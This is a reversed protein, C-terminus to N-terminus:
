CATDKIPATALYRVALEMGDLQSPHFGPKLYVPVETLFSTLNPIVKRRTASIGELVPALYRRFPNRSRRRAPDNAVLWALTAMGTAFLAASGLVAMRARRAYSGDIHQYADFVVSRHEVEEAGHWRLLDLLMPHIGSGALGESELFFKGWVATYHELASFLALRECLLRHRVQDGGFDAMIVDLIRNLRTVVPEPDLGLEALRDLVGGHNDAHTAEQGIFGVVEEYLRPDDILPLAQALAKSMAKEGEPLLLHMCNYVHTAVMQGPIYHMPVDDWRFDMDRARIAHAEAAYRQRTSDEPKGALRM